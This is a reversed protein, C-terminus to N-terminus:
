RYPSIIAASIGVKRTLPRNRRDSFDPPNESRDIGRGFEHGDSPWLANGYGYTGKTEFLWRTHDFDQNPNKFSQVLSFNKEMRGGRGRSPLPNAQDKAESRPEDSEDDSIGKYSEKCGPCYGGDIGVCDLYCERCIVFGCECKEEAKKEDCGEMQCMTKCKMVMPEDESSKRVHAKTASNFGGTFITDKIYGDSPNGYGYSKRSSGVGIPSNQSDVVTRNDPTPPIHVTYAVFEDTSEKSMSLYRGGSSGRLGKGSLPSNPNTSLSHRRIPSTLGHCGGTPSSTVTIKVPSSSLSQSDILGMKRKTDLNM